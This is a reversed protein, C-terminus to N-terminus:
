SRQPCGAWNAAASPSAGSVILQPIDLRHATGSGHIRHTLRAVQLFQTLQHHADAAVLGLDREAALGEINHSRFLAPYPFLTYTRTSVPPRRRMLFFVFFM